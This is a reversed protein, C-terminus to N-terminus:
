CYNYLSNKSLAPSTESQGRIGAESFKRVLNVLNQKLFLFLFIIQKLQRKGQFAVENPFNWM